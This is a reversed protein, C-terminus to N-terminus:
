DQGKKASATPPRAIFPVRSPLVIWLLVGGPIALAQRGLRPWAAVTLLVLAVALTAEVRDFEVVRSWVAAAAANGYQNLAARTTM